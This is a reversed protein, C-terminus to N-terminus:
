GSIWCSVTNTSVAELVLGIYYAIGYVIWTILVRLESDESTNDLDLLWDYPAWIAVSLVAGTLVFKTINKERERRPLCGIAQGFLIPHTLFTASLKLYCLPEKLKDLFYDIM